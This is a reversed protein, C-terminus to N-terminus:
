CSDALARLGEVRVRFETWVVPGKLLGVQALKEQFQCRGHQRGERLLEPWEIDVHRHFGSVRFGCGRFSGTGSVARTTYFHTEHRQHGPAITQCRKRATDSM